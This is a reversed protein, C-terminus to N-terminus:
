KAHLINNLIQRNIELDLVKCDGLNGVNMSEFTNPAPIQQSNITAKSLLPLLQIVYNTLEKSTMDTRVYGASLIQSALSLMEPLSKSKYRNILATLVNRQREARKADWDLKRIRSYNLAVEGNMHNVGETMSYGYHDNLWKAEAKTLKIDVGGLMDIIATFGNFDVGVNANVHVGFNLAMTQDLLNFGGHAYAANMKEPKYGPISVYSDRLFSIMTLTNNNLNFCCLIMSDSRQRGEGPRRDEGVLMINIIGQDSMDVVPTDHPKTAITIDTPDVTPGTGTYPPDNEGVGTGETPESPYTPETYDGNVTIMDLLHNVYATAAVMTTLVLALVTCLVILSIKQWTVNAPFKPSKM